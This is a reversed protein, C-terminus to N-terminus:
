NYPSIRQMKWRVRGKTWYFTRQVPMFKGQIETLQHVVFDSNFINEGGLASMPRSFEIMSKPMSYVSSMQDAAYKEFTLENNTGEKHVKTLYKWTKGYVYFLANTFIGDYQPSAMNFSVELLEKTDSTPDSETTEKLRVDMNVLDAKDTVSINVDNLMVFLINNYKAVGVGETQRYNFSDIRGLIELKVRGELPRTRESLGALPVLFNGDAAGIKPHCATYYYNLVNKHPRVPNQTLWYRETDEPILPLKFTPGQSPDQQYVWTTGNWWYDGICLRAWIYPFYSDVHNQSTSKLVANLSKSPDSYDYDSRLRPFVLQTSGYLNGNYTDNYAFGIDGVNENLFFATMDIKLYANTDIMLSEDTGFPFLTGFKRPSDVQDNVADDSDWYKRGWKNNLIIFYDKMYTIAEAYNEFFEGLRVTILGIKTTIFDLSDTCDGDPRDKALASDTCPFYGSQGVSRGATAMSCDEMEVYDTDTIGPETYQLRMYEYENIRNSNDGEAGLRYMIGDSHGSSPAIVQTKELFKHVPMREPKSTVRAGKYKDQEYSIQLDAGIKQQNGFTEFIAPVIISLHSTNSFIYAFKSFSGSDISGIIYHHNHPDHSNTASCSGMTFHVGIFQLVDEFVDGWKAEKNLEDENDEGTGEGMLYYRQLNLSLLSPLYGAEQGVGIYAVANKSFVMRSEADSIGAVSYLHAFNAAHIAHWAQFLEWITVRAPKGSITDKIRIYKAVGVEDIAVLPCSMFDDVVTMNLTNCQLYGRWMEYAADSADHDIAYLLMRVDTYYNCLDMLWWPFLQCAMNFSLKSSVLPVFVDDRNDDKSLVDGTLTGEYTYVVDEEGKDTSIHRFCRDNDLAGLVVPFATEREVSMVLMFDEDNIDSFPFRIDLIEM